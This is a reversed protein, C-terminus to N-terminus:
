AMGCITPLGQLTSIEFDPEIGTDNSANNRNLWVSKIGANRAGYVDNKLSDGVHLLEHAACNAHELAAEFIRRDPKEFGMDQSFIVFDFRNPLGCREPYSNGNSLLGLRYSPSLRDLAPIADAYLEADKFRHELYITNLHRALEDDRPGVQSVTRIFARLRIEELSINTGKLEGAVMDRLEIMEDVTLRFAADSPVHKRLEQLALKLSHRMVKQFDWLTGDGDFSITSIGSNNVM